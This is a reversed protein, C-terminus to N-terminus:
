AVLVACRSLCTVQIMISPFSSPLKCKVLDL